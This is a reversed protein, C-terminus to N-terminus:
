QRRMLWFNERSATPHGSRVSEPLNGNRWGIGAIPSHGPDEPHPRGDTYIRRMRYIRPM